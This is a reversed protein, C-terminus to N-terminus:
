HYPSEEYCSQCINYDELELFTQCVKCKKYLHGDEKLFFMVMTNLFSKENKIKNDEIHFIDKFNFSLWNYADLKNLKYEVYNLDELTRISKIESKLEKEFDFDELKLIKNKILRYFFDKMDENKVDIPSFILQYKEYLSLLTKTSKVKDLESEIVDAKFLLETYDMKIFNPEVLDYLQIFREIVM